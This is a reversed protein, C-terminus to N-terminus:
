HKMLKFERLKIYYISISAFDDTINHKVAVNYGPNRL